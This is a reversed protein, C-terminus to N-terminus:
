SLPIWGLHKGSVAVSCDTMNGLLHIIREFPFGYFTDNTEFRYLGDGDPGVLSHLLLRAISSYYSTIIEARQESRLRDRIEGVHQANGLDDIRIYPRWFNGFCGEGNIGQNAEQEFAEILDDPLSYRFRISRHFNRILGDPTSDSAFFESPLVDMECDGDDDHNFYRSFWFWELESHSEVIPRIVRGLLTTYWHGHGFQDNWPVFIRTQRIAM